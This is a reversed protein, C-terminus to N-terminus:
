SCRECRGLILYIKGTAARTNTTTVSKTKASARTTLVNEVTCVCLNNMLLLPVVTQQNTHNVNPLVFVHFTLCLLGKKPVAHRDAAPQLTVSTVFSVHNVVM